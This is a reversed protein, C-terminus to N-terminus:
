YNELVSCVVSRLLADWTVATEDTALKSINDVTQDYKGPIYGKIRLSYISERCGLLFVKPSERRFYQVQFPTQTARLFGVKDHWRAPRRSRRPM